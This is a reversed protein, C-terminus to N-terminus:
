LTQRPSNLLRHRQGRLIDAEFYKFQEKLVTSSLHFETIFNKNRNQQEHDVHGSTVPNEPAPEVKEASHSLTVVVDTPGDPFRYVGPKAMIELDISLLAASQQDSM